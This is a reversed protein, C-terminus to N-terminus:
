LQLPNKKTVTDYVWRLKKGDLKPPRGSLPKAKNAGAMFARWSESILACRNFSSLRSRRRFKISLRGFKM